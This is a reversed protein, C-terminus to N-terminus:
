VEALGEQFDLSLATEKGLSSSLLQDVEWHRCKATCLATMGEPVWLPTLYVSKLLECWCGM